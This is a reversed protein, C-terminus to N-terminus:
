SNLHAQAAALRAVPVRFPSCSVYDLGTTHCFAISAPDGGHEGCIGCKLESRTNRGNAVAMRVLQGVGTIDMSQFPDQAIIGQSLYDPLFSKADDRSFGLTMQTLDNTGFSFFDAHAAIADATLAARPIEIMTGIQIRLEGTYKKRKQTAAIVDEAQERLLQLESDMGVLPIMIEPQVDIDKHLCNIAAETIARVQMQLVEPYTISLRCGRHGLMPNVEHLQDVRKKIRAPSIGLDRALARQARADQPLFEHLPPDLLRITVPLGHMAKFLGEFDRRQFPLLKNLAVRRQQETEAVIMERMFLIRNEDFFMHETRCLGIGEAGLERARRADSPSDANARVGLRRVQDAWQMLTAFESGLDPESTPLAGRIVEGTAGDLSLVDDGSFSQGKIKLTKRREDIELEHAGAVCCKGWGRAVVAAHSTAGGMATLIGTAVHMGHIDEPSTERRVLLVKENKEARAVAEDASFALVGSAAGPSAAIGRTLVERRAKQDFSPLLLQNIDDARIRLLATKKDIRRQRVMEVAIRVAALGTRKGTRTQLMYLKGNEVTFEIDQMDKYHRELITKIKVLQQYIQPKWQQMEVVPRPTRLGAVVDEGQANILFEGYLQDEGTAPHRTFAVGTGSEDGLNGFVMSQINVATGHLNNIQNLNRYHIARPTNWSNFVAEIAERLQHGPDQPFPQGTAKKYIQKYASILAELGQENLESDEKVQHRAKLTDLSQEFLHHEIGKVVEGFMNILRRYADLAFRRDQAARALGEVTEDNLGLNLITDMMGPMSVAAGSRVSLLLPQDISGFQKGTEKELLLLNEQVGKLVRESLKGKEVYDACIATGITFGPPVPLGLHTMEALNAGKGGLEQKMQTNGDTRTKGFYFIQKQKIPM